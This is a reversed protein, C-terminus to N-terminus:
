AHIGANSDGGSNDVHSVIHQPPRIYGLYHYSVKVIDQLSLAGDNDYDACMSIRRSLENDGLYGLYKYFSLLTDKYIMAGTPDVFSSLSDYDYMCNFAWTVHATLIFAGFRLLM